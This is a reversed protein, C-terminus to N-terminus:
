ISLRRMVRGPLLRIVLMIWRWFWPAYSVPRGAAVAALAARAVSEPSAALAMGRKGWTLGTDTFGPKVLTVSVGAPAMRAGFGEVFAALGAKAAGYAYNSRRGRDGAVSGFVLVRGAGQAELLPAFSDLLAAAAVLNVAFGRRLLARDAEVAAQEPMTAFALLLNLPRAAQQVGAVLAAPADPNTADFETVRADVGFRVRLDAASHELDARDRGALVVDAGAAAVRRACARAIASSGGVIIWTGASM